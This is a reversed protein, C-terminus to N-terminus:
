FVEAGQGIGQDSTDRVARLGIFENATINGSWEVPIIIYVLVVWSSGWRM